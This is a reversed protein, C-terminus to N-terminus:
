IGPVVGSAHACDLALAIQEIIACTENLSLPGRLIRDRLTEGPCYAMAIFPPSHTEVVEFVTAINPHDLASAAQAERLFRRVAVPDREATLVKLALRRGLQLDEALYVVGMGGAGLQKLIQFHGVTEGPELMLSVIASLIDAAVIAACRDRDCLIANRGHGDNGELVQGLAVPLRGRELADGEVDLLTLDEAQETRVPGALARQHSDQHVDDPWVFPADQREPMRPGAVIEIAEAIERFLSPQVRLEGDDVHHGIEARQLSQRPGRAGAHPPTAGFFRDAAPREHLISRRLLPMLWFTCIAAVSILSGSTHMM